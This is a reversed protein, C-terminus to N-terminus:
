GPSLEVMLILLYSIASTLVFSCFHWPSFVLRTPIWPWSRGVGLLQGPGVGCVPQLAVISHPCRLRLGMDKPELDNSKDTGGLMCGVRASVM